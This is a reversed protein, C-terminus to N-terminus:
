AAYQLYQVQGIGMALVIADAGEAAAIAAEFAKADSSNKTLGCGPAVVLSGGMPALKARIAQAPTVICDFRNGPCIEGLYNGVLEKDANSHPGILAVTMKKV